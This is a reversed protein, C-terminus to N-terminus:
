EKYEPTVIKSFSFKFANQLKSLCEAKSAEATNPIVVQLVLSQGCRINNCLFVAKSLRLM